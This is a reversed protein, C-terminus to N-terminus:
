TQITKIGVNTSVTKRVFSVDYDLARALVGLTEREASVHYWLVDAMVGMTAQLVLFGVVAALAAVGDNETLGLTTGIAFILPLNDFIVNGSQSMVQPILPPLWAIEANLLGSGVGLLLGAVPLVAVPLMLSKGIQQLFAFAKKM